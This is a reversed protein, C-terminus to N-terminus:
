DVLGHQKLYVLEAMLDRFSSFWSENEFKANDIIGEAEFYYELM